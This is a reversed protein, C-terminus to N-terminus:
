PRSRHGAGTQGARNHFGAPRDEARRCGPRGPLARPHMSRSRAAFRDLCRNCTKEPRYAAVDRHSSTAPADRLRHIRRAPRCYGPRWRNATRSPLGPRAPSSTRPCVTGPEYERDPQAAGPTRDNKKSPERDEDFGNCEITSSERGPPDLGFRPRAARSPPDREHALRFGTTSSGPWASSLSCSVIPRDEAVNSALGRGELTSVRRPSLWRSVTSAIMTAKM